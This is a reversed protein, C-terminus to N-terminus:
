AVSTEYPDKNKVWRHTPKGIKKGKRSITKVVKTNLVQTRYTKCMEYVKIKNSPSLIYIGV